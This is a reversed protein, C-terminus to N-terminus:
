LYNKIREKTASDKFYSEINLVARIYPDRFCTINLGVNEVFEHLQPITYARDQKHLFFIKSDSIVLYKIIM